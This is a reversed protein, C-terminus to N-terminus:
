IGTKPDVPNVVRRDELREIRFLLGSVRRWAHLAEEFDRREQETAISSFLNKIEEVATISFNYIHNLDPRTRTPDALYKQLVEIRDEADEKSIAYINIM